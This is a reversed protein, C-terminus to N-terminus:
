DKVQLWSQLAFGCLLGLQLIETIDHALRSFNVSALSNLTPYFLIVPFSVIPEVYILELYANHQVNLQQQTSTHMIVFM